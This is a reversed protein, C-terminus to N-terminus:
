ADDDHGTNFHTVRIFVYDLSSPLKSVTLYTNKCYADAHCYRYEIVIQLSPLVKNAFGRLLIEIISSELHIPWSGFMFQRAMFDDHVPMDHERVCGHVWHLTVYHQLGM